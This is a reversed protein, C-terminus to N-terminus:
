RAANPSPSVSHAQARINTSFKNVTKKIEIENLKQMEMDRVSWVMHKHLRDVHMEM